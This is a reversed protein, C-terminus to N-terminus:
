APLNRYATGLADALADSNVGKITITCDTSGKKKITMGIATKSGIRYRDPNTGIQTVGLNTRMANLTETAHGSCDVDIAGLAQGATIICEDPVTRDQSPKDQVQTPAQGLLSAMGAADLLACTGTPQAVPDATAAGAAHGNAAPGSSAAPKDSSGSCGGVLFMLCLAGLRFRSTRTKM